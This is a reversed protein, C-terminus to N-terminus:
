DRVWGDEKYSELIEKIRKENDKGGGWQSYDDRAWVELTKTGEDWECSDVEIETNGIYIYMGHYPVFPLEYEGELTYTFSSNWELRVSLRYVAKM